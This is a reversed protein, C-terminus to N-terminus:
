NSQNYYDFKAWNVNNAGNGSAYLAIYVGSFSSTIETGLYQTIAKDLLKFEKNNQSFSFKYFDKDFQVKLSVPSDFVEISKTEKSIDGITKRVILCQKGKRKSIFFDYHSETNLYVTIGAEESENTAIFQVKTEANGSIDPQRKGVFTPSAFDNLGVKSVKLGLQGPFKTLSYNVSDPNRLYNWELGLIPQNFDDLNNIPVNNITQPLTPVNVYLNAKVQDDSFPWNNIWTIPTLFTERGINCMSDYNEHRTALFVMWWTGDKAQIIDGHGTSRIEGYVEHQALIPNNPNNEFPGWPSKSRGINVMHLARTGGEATLLYYYGDKKYLHPGETDRSKFGDSILRLSDKLKGTTLDIEAQVIGTQGRRTYYVKGDEDFFLSPDFMGKEIYIPESWPGAPNTAKVFFNGGRTMNTTVMYFVGKSYRLTPAWIGSWRASGDLDLQSKRTLCYGIQKWNILDKSHFIPVGPFFEFSSNVLYYDDGVRCVSPDPHFSKIIPNQYGDTKNQSFVNTQTILLLAFIVTLFKM